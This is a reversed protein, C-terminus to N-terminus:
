PSYLRSRIGFRKFLKRGKLVPELTGTLRWKNPDYWKLFSIPVGMEGEYDKPIKRSRSVEIADVNDYKPYKEPSYEETPELPHYPPKFTTLLVLNTIPKNEGGRNKFLTFGKMDVKLRGEKIDPFITSYGASTLPAFVIMDKERVRDYFARLLSFPPNTVVIDSANLLPDIENTRFDGTTTQVYTEVSGDYHYKYAGQGINYNSAYLGKLGFRHYNDKFYRVFNSWHFDDCPCYVVKGEFHPTYHSLCDEITKYDTYYEDNRNRKADLCYRNNRM